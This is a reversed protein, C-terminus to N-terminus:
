PLWFPDDEDQQARDQHRRPAVSGMRGPRSGGHGDGDGGPIELAQSCFKLFVRCNPPRLRNGLLMSSLAMTTLGPAWPCPKLDGGWGLNPIVKIPEPAGWPASSIAGHPREKPPLM